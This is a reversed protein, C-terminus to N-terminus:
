GSGNDMVLVEEVVNSGSIVDDEVISKLVYPEPYQIESELKINALEKFGDMEHAQVNTGSFTYLVNGIYLSRTIESNSYFYYGSKNYAEFDIHSIEARKTFGNELTVNYVYVGQFVTDGYVWDLQDKSYKQTDVKTLKLPLVFLNKEKDFLLAKHDWIVRSDSGRDGLIVESIQKPHAVDSVDFLAMKVGKIKVRDEENKLEQTDKGIGIIHTEDYPHLYNSFGPIKLQGLITPDNPNSLDIVFLPDVNRFTVLYLRDGMFRASYIREKPALDTLSGVVNLNLDLTYVNNVLPNTKDWSNGSTTAIRFYDDYEDMSFQNLVHGLVEGSAAYNINLGDIEIRTIITKEREQQIERRIKEIDDSMEDQLEQQKEYSLSQMYKQVVYEIESFKTSERLDYSNIKQIQQKVDVPLYKMIVENLIRKQETIYSVYKRSVLYINNESVYMDQSNGKLITKENFSNDKTDIALIISLQYSSDSLSTYGIETAKLEKLGGTYYIVPPIFDANVYKNIIVYVYDGIMRSNFYYGELSITDELQPKQRDTVDFIKVVSHMKKNIPYYEGPLISAVGKKSDETTEDIDNPKDNTTEDEFYERGLVVLKNGNIFIQSISGGKSFFIESVITAKSPDNASIIQVKNNAVYYIYNGDTKVIDAEDVAEVQNTTKSYEEEINAGVSSASEDSMPASKLTEMEIANTSIAGSLRMSGYYDNNSNQELFSQLEELSSFTKLSGDQSEYTESLSDTLPVCASMSSTIFLTIVLLFISIPITEFSFQKLIKFFQKM